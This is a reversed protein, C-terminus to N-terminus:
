SEEKGFSELQERTLGEIEGWTMGRSDLFAFDPAWADLAAWCVSDVWEWPLHAPLVQDMERLAEEETVGLLRGLFVRLGDTGEEAAGKVGAALLLGPLDGTGLRSPNIALREATIRRREELTGSSPQPRYLKEWREVGKESATPAFLDGLLAEVAEEVLDFGAGCANLEWDASSEGTLRYAGTANLIERMRELARGSM